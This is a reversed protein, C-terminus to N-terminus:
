SYQDPWDNQLVIVDKEVTLHPLAAFAALADDFWVIEGNYTSEKLGKEIYPTVSNRILITKEIGAEALQKGIERHVTETHSGMEVLGPTM